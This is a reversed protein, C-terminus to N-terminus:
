AQGVTGNRLGHDIYEGTDLTIIETRIGDECSADPVGVTVQCKLTNGYGLRSTDVICVYTGDDQREMEAKPIPQTRGPYFYFVATFDVDDMTLSGPLTLSLAFKMETGSVARCINCGCDM